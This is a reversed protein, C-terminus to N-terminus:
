SQVAQLRMKRSARLAKLFSLMACAAATPSCGVRLPRSAMRLVVSQLGTGNFCGDQIETLGDPLEIQTLDGCCVFADYGIFTLSEPLSISRLNICNFFAYAEIRTIGEPLTVNQLGYHMHFADKGVSTVPM